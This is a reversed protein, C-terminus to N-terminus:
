SNTPKLGLLEFDAQDLPRLIQHENPRPVFGQWKASVPPSLENVEEANLTSRFAGTFPSVYFGSLGNRITTPPLNLIESTLVAERQRVTENGKPGRNDLVEADGIIKAAWSATDPDDSRLVVKTACQGVLESALERGYAHRLGQLDQLGIVIRNGAGRGFTAMRCLAEMKGLEKVEDFIHWVKRTDSQKQSLLLESARQYIARNVAGMALTISPIWGLLIISTSNIWDVLAIKESARDWCAAIPAFQNIKSNLCSRINQYTREEDFYQCVHATEPHRKLAQRLLQTDQAVLIVHRLTWRRPSFRMFSLMLSAVIHRAADSFFRNPGPDASILIVAIQDTTTVSTCDRAVDWAVCRIDFPNLIYYRCRIGLAHLLPVLEQKGDFIIAREDRDDCITSVADKLIGNITKTKGSGTAGVICLHTRTTEDSVGVGGLRLTAQDKSRRRTSVLQAESRTLLKRGRLFAWEEKPLRAVKVGLHALLIGAVYRM